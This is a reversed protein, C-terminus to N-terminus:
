RIVLRRMMEVAEAPVKERASDIQVQPNAKIAQAVKKYKGFTSEGIGAKASAEANRVNDVALEVVQAMDWQARAQRTRPAPAPPASVPAIEETPQPLFNELTFERDENEVITATAVVQMPAVETVVAAAKMSAALLFVTCGLMMGDIGIPGAFTAIFPEKTKKMFEHLNVYSTVFTTVSVSMLLLRGFYGLKHTRHRNRVMVEIALFLFSPWVIAGPIRWGLAVPTDTLFVNAMNGAISVVVGSGVGFRAWKIGNEPDDFMNM